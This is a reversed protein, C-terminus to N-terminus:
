SRRWAYDYRVTEANRNRQIVAELGLMGERVIEATVTVSSAINFDTLWDLAEAGYQQALAVVEATEKARQLLWLRSGLRFSPQVAVGPAAQQLGLMAGLYWDGWWGRKDGAGPNLPDDDPLVDGPEAQRDLFWSLYVSTRLSHDIKLQGRPLLVLDGEWRTPDFEIALDM